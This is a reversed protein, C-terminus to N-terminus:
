QRNSERNGHVLPDYYDSQPGESRHEINSGELAYLAKLERFDEPTFSMLWQRQTGPGNSGSEAAEKEEFMVQPLETEKDILIHGQASKVFFSFDFLNEVTQTFSKPNLLTEFMDKKTRACEPKCETSKMKSIRTQTQDKNLKAKKGQQEMEPVVEEADDDNMKQRRQAQKREKAPKDLPGMMFDAGDPLALFVMSINGGWGAWNFLRSGDGDEGKSQSFFKGISDLAEEVNVGVSGGNVKDGQKASFNALHKLNDADNAAERPYKTEEFLLGNALTLERSNDKTLDAIESEQEIIKSKLARQKLRLERRQETTQGSLAMVPKRAKKSGGGGGGRGSSSGEGGAQRRSRKESM